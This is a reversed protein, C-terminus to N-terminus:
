ELQVKAFDLVSAAPPDEEDAEQALNVNTGGGGAKCLHFHRHDTTCDLVLTVIPVSVDIKIDSVKAFDERSAQLLMWM